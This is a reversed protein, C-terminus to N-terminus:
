QRQLEPVSLSCESLTDLHLGYEPIFFDGHLCKTVEGVQSSWGTIRVILKLTLTDTHRHTKHRHTHTHTPTRTCTHTVLSQWTVMISLYISLIKIQFLLATDVCATPKCVPGPYCVLTCLFVFSSPAHLMGLLVTFWVWIQLLRGLIHILGPLCTPM